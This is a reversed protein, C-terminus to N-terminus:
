EICVKCVARRTFKYIESHGGVKNKFPQLPVTMRDGPSGAGAAVRVEGGADDEDDEELTQRIRRQPSKMESRDHEPLGAHKMQDNALHSQRIYSPSRRSTHPPSLARSRGNYPPRGPQRESHHDSEVASEYIDDGDSESGSSSSLGSSSEWTDESTWGHPFDAAPPWESDDAVSPKGSPQVRSQVRSIAPSAM